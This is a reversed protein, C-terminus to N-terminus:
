PPRGREPGSVGARAPDTSGFKCWPHAIREQAQPWSVGMPSRGTEQKVQATAGTQPPDAEGARGTDSAIPVLPGAEETRRTVFWPPFLGGWRRGHMLAPLDIELQADTELNPGPHIQVRHAIRDPFSAQPGM